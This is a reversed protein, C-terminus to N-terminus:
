VPKVPAVQEPPLVQRYNPNSSPTAEVGKAHQPVCWPAPKRAPPSAPAAPKKPEPPNTM